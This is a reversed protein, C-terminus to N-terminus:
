RYDVDSTIRLNYLTCGAAGEHPRFTVRVNEKGKTLHLPIPITEDFYNLHLVRDTEVTALQQGEVLVDVATGRAEDGWFTCILQYPESSDDRVRLKYSFEGGAEVHRGLRNCAWNFNHVAISDRSGQLEHLRENDPNGILVYDTFAKQCNEWEGPTYIKWYVSHRRHHMQYYPVFSVDNGSVDKAIFHLSDAPGSFWSPLNELAGVFKPILQLPLQKAARLGQCNSQIDPEMGETGMDGALVLPGYCFTGFHPEGKAWRIRLTKPLFLSFSDGDAMGGLDLWGDADTSVAKRRGNKRLEIQGDCWAPRRVKLNGRFSGVREVRIDIQDSQFQADLHVRLGTEKDNLTSAIFLGVLLAKENHFFINEGYKAHNELGTGVCCWFSHYPTSYQKYGGPQLTTYYTVGGSHCPDLSGLIHNCLALEYYDLLQQDGDVLFLERTLRLM